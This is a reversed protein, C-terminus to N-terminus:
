GNAVRVDDDVEEPTMTLISVIRHLREASLHRRLEAWLEAQRDVQSQGEFRPSIVFGGVNGSQTVELQIQEATFGAALLARRVEEEM